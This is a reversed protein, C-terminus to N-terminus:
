FLASSNKFNSCKKKYTTVIFVFGAGMEQEFGGLAIIGHTQGYTGKNKHCIRMIDHLLRENFLATVVELIIPHRRHQACYFISKRITILATQQFGGLMEAFM